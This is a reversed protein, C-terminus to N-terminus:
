QSSGKSAIFLAGEPVKETKIYVDVQQGVYSPMKKPDFSYIVQLVRTDIRETADGTLSKKPVVYPELYEYTLPTTYQINGRLFAVAPEDKKFRWADAEDIDVRVQYRQTNGLLILPTSLSGIDAYSGPDLNVQLIECDLPATILYCSLHVRAANLDELAEKASSQAAAVNEKSILVNNEQVLVEEQSLARKDQVKHLIDLQDQDNKLTARAAALKAKEKQLTAEKIKVDAQAQRADLSFLPAGKKVRDGVQVFIQDVVGPVLTGLEITDDYAEIIGSGAIFYEYPPIAPASVPPVIPRKKNNLHVMYAGSCIGLVSFFMLIYSLKFYHKM